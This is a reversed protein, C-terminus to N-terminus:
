KYHSYILVELFGEQALLEVVFHAPLLQFLHEAHRANHHPRINKLVLIPLASAHACHCKVHRNFCNLSDTDKKFMDTTPLTFVPELSFIQM